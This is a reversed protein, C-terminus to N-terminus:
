AVSFYFDRDKYASGTGTTVLVTEADNGCTSTPHTDVYIESDWPANNRLVATPVLETVPKVVDLKLCYKGTGPKTVTVNKANRVTGDAAVEAAAQAYPAYIELVPDADATATGAVAISGIVATAVAASVRKAFSPMSM